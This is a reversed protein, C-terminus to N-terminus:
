TLNIVRANADVTEIIAAALEEPTASPMQPNGAITDKFITHLLITRDPCISPAISGRKASLIGVVFTWHMCATSNAQSCNGDSSRSIERINESGLDPHNMKVPGDILGIAIETKGTTLEMLQTLKVSDLPTM